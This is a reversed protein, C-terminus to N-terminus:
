GVVIIIYVLVSTDTTRLKMVVFYSGFGLAICVNCATSVVNFSVRSIEVQVELITM